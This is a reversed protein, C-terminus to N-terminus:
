KRVFIQAIEDEYVQTWDPSATLVATLPTGREMLVYDVDYEDLPDQWTARVEFTERYLLLFPDGYVDARGDVFVPVGRWILYGGWNYSNYGRAEDLGSAELYDVAAVPYRAAIATENNDIKTISYLVATGMAVLLIVWNLVVFLGSGLPKDGQVNTTNKAFGKPDLGVSLWHRVIIPTAVIAFLPIHRASVLGAAGTGLFLLLETITVQATAPRRVTGSPSVAPVGVAALDNKNFIWGLVGLALMGAFPWFYTQHFDPSLWEQIYAQMPGSGLTLFPYIWLEIGSPNVAAALFSVMTVGFLQFITALPLTRVTPKAILWRQAADGAAYTGLLVIGLLYGSHLNAWVLTLLPLWWLARAGLKGDKVREVILVFVATLLLNFIQPRAGWVIASTIAALLVIFAALYPRGACALYLLWYTLAILAAFFLILGPLGGVEYVLWMILQSLWEHTVWANQPVTFTFLDQAPIGNQLIVEGTRLHWWMDPDLTERVAMAFLAIAFLAVFLRKTDLSTFKTVILFPVLLSQRCFNRLPKQCPSQQM